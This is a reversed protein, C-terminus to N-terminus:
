KPLKTHDIESGLVSHPILYTVLLGAMAIIVWWKQDPRAKIRWIAIIWVLLGFSTKNDTLDTGFPWGTWFADFAYWQMLPGFIFGGIFLSLTTFITFKLTNDGKYIGELTTRFALTLTFFMFFLHFVVIVMPVDGRFRIVVPAETLQYDKGNSNLSISYQIKGAKPQHPLEASLIGNNSQLNVVTDNDFSKFRKYTIKGTITQDKTELKIVEPGDGAHSRPLEFKYSNNNIEMKVKKPYTPGTTRQYVVLVAMLIFSIIWFIISQKKSM